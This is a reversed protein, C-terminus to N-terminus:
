GPPERPLRGDVERIKMFLGVALLAIAGLAAYLGAKRFDIEALAQEGDGRAAVAVAEGEGTKSLVTAPKFAHLIVRAETLRDKAEALRYQPESVEMGAREARDLIGAATDIKGALGSLSAEMRIAAARGADAADEHCQACVSKPGVGLMADTPPHIEHNSHCFVCAALDNAEFVPKHPSEGFLKAQQAHCTGCVNAVSAVGPPAAGHNGHCSVCSPAATNQEKLLRQGHVSHEYDDEQTAPVNYTAMLSKNSHCKGCTKPINYPYV